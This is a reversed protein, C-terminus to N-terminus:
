QGYLGVLETSELIHGDMAENIDQVAESSDLELATDLAYLKFFYRHTGSPPCPGRYGTEGFDTVGEIAGVPVSNEQIETVSPDINWVTWHVWTGGPADPDDVILVLSEAGAPVGGITLQPNIDAGDCTYNAPIMENNGFATSEIKMNQAAEEEEEAVAAEEEVEEEEEEAKQGEDEVVVEAEKAEEVEEKSEEGEETKEEVAEGTAAPAGCAAIFSITFVFFFLVVNIMFVKLVNKM